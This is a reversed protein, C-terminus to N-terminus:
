FYRLQIAHSTNMTKSQKYIYLIPTRSSGAPELSLIEKTLNIQWAFSLDVTVAVTYPRFSFALFGVTSACVNVGFISM